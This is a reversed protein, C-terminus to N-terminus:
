TTLAGIQRLFTAVDWLNWAEAMKGEEFCYLHNGSIKVKKGTPAVGQFEGQHTGKMTVRIAARNETAIIDEVKIQLDPVAKLFLQLFDTVGEPGGVERFAGALDHRIFGSTVLTPNIHLDRDNIAQIARRITAINEEATM